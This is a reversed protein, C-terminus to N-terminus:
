GCACNTEPMECDPCIPQAAPHQQRRHTRFDTAATAPEQAGAAAEHASTGALAAALGAVHSETADQVPQAEIGALVALEGMGHLGALDTVVAALYHAYDSFRTSDLVMVISGEGLWGPRKVNSTWESCEDYQQFLTWGHAALWARFKAPSHREKDILPELSRPMVRLTHAQNRQEQATHLMEGVQDRANEARDARLTEATLNARVEVCLAICEEVMGRMGKDARMAELYEALVTGAERESQDAPGTIIVARDHGGPGSDATYQSRFVEADARTAFDYTGDDRGCCIARAHWPKDGQPQTDPATM